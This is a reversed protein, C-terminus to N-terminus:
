KSQRSHSVCAEAARFLDGSNASIVLGPRAMRHLGHRPRSRRPPRRMSNGKDCFSVSSTARDPAISSQAQNRGRPESGQTPSRWPPGPDQKPRRCIRRPGWRPQSCVGGRKFGIPEMPPLTLGLRPFETSHKSAKRNEKTSAKCNEKAHSAESSEVEALECATSERTPPTPRDCRGPQPKREDRAPRFM